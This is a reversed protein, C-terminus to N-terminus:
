SFKEEAFAQPLYDILDRAILGYSTKEQAAIEGAIGHFYAGAAAAEYCDFGQALLAAIMGTLVDGSGATAMGPDGRTLILPSKGHAFLFSPAGKLLLVVRKREVFKQCRALFEEEAPASKLGLLRLMEGRHPTLVAYPPFLMGKQLADADLVAPQKLKKIWGLNKKGLGPGAFVASARKLEQAQLKTNWPRCILEMPAEGIEGEHFIQVIGAGSRLAALGAIKPAGRMTSSGSFGVVYGAEYKHRSRVIPPLRMALPNPLYAIPEAQMYFKHPLGFDEIVLTGVHNWGERLFCGIKGMGLSVTLTARIAVSAVEGTAGNLGSPLDIALIPQCTENALRIATEIIGEIEGKFGTGLMGDIIWGDDFSIEEGDWVSVIKGRKSFREQFKRNAPSCSQPPFLALARVSFGEELLTLGAAYADAGKNGKGVLLTAKKEPFSLISLAVKRGAERVFAEESSGEKVALADVRAMEAPTVVKIGPLPITSISLRATRPM